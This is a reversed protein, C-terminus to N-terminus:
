GSPRSAMLPHIMVIYQGQAWGDLSVRTCTYGTEQSYGLMGRMNYVDIYTLGFSSYVTFSKADRRYIKGAGIGRRHGGQTDLTADVVNVRDGAELHRM